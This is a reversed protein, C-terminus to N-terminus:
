VRPASNIRARHPYVLLCWGIAATRQLTEFGRCRPVTAFPPHSPKRCHPAPETQHALCHAPPEPPVTSTSTGLDTPYKPPRATATATPRISGGSASNLAATGTKLDNVLVARGLATRTTPSTSSPAALGTPLSASPTM